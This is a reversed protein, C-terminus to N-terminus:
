FSAYRRKRILSRIVAFLIIFVIPLGLNIVQFKIKEEEVRARDLPRIKIEKSRATILGTEDTLYALSNLLFDKNAFTTNTFVDLGLPQPQRTRPNVVNKALDGDAIVILKGKRGEPKFTKSDAGEPLFRNKYLSTFNGELLYGVPITPTSFQEPNTNKVVSQISVNVPAAVIRAYPSTFLLPTKKIGVAKVSDMSSTFQLIIADLNNTIPHDAYRNILPFYPWDILQVQPRTGSQGTVIPYKGSTRDQILVPNIRVGYKFLQDDLNLDYPFALYSESSASDMSADMKDLMLFVNGRQLLFQDLKFKELESFSKKPKAVVLVDMDTLDSESLSVDVVDYLEHAAQKFAVIELGNLEDHGTVFGIRKPNDNSLKYIAYALEFEVGEISQNIEEEQTSAKNGKLLQVGTEASGYGVVAGPFILKEIRQGDQMDIVRTPQIGKSAVEQMFEAQAKESVAAAPDTFTYQVRGNSQIRFEELTERISNKFRRFPANLEGDLYVEIFVQDDLNKLIQKTAPKIQYRKEETLDARFFYKASLINILLLFVLGNALLLFDGLKKSKWSVM